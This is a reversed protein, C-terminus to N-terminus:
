LVQAVPSHAETKSFYGVRQTAAETVVRVLCEVQQTHNPYKPLIIPASFAEQLMTLSMGTTLPPETCPEKEWDVLETYDTAQFNVVPPIFQRPHNDPDFENRARKIWQVAKRLIEEREDTLM